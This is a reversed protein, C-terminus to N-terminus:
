VKELRVSQAQRGRACDYIARLCNFNFVARENLVAPSPQGNVAQFFYFLPRELMQPATEDQVYSVHQSGVRGEDDYYYTLGDQDLWDFEVAGKTGQFEFQKLSSAYAPHGREFSVSVQTGDQCYYLMSAGVHFEVDLIGGEPLVVDSVPPAMWAHLVDVQVPQLIDNIATMDYPGWDMLVGGGSQQSDFCWTRNGGVVIGSRSGQGRYLWRVHYLSGFKRKAVWSKLTETVHHGIFRPSCCGLLKEVERAKALMSRSEEQNMALPKECLVHRKSELAQLTVSCHSVPQTCVIVIDNEWAPEALMSLTDQHPIVSPFREKFRQLVIPNNDSVHTELEDIPLKSITQIHSNAISGVGIIYVRRKPM